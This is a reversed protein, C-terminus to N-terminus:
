VTVIVEVFVDCRVPFADTDRTKDGAIGGVQESEMCVVESRVTWAVAVQISGCCSGSVVVRRQPSPVEVVAFL